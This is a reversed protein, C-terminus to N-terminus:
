IGQKNIEKIMGILKIYFDELDIVPKAKLEIKLDKNIRLVLHFIMLIRVQKM